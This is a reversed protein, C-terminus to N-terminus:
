FICAFINTFNVGPTSKMLMKRAAKERASGLLVFFVPMDDTDKQAKPIQVPLLQTYFTSSITRV